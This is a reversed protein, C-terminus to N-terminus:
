PDESSTPAPPLWPPLEDDVWQIDDPNVELWIRAGSALRNEDDQMLVTPGDWSLKECRWVGVEVYLDEEGGVLPEVMRMTIAPRRNRMMFM